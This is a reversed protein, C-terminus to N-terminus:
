ERRHVGERKQTDHHGGLESTSIVKGCPCRWRILGRRLGVFEIVPLGHPAHIWSRLRQLIWPTDTM